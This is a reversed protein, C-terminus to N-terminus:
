VLDEIYTLVPDDAPLWKVSRLDEHGLWRADEHELFHLENPNASCLYCDMILHFDPYDHEVTLLFREIM